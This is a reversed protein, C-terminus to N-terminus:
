RLGSTNELEFGIPQFPKSLQQQLSENHKLLGSMVTHVIELM